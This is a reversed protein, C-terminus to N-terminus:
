KASPSLYLNMSKEPACALLSVCVAENFIQVSNICEPGHCNGFGVHIIKESIIPFIITDKRQLLGMRAPLNNIDRAFFKHIDEAYFTQISRTYCKQISKNLNKFIELMLNKFTYSMIKFFIERMFNIFIKPMFNM